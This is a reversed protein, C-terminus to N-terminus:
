LYKACVRKVRNLITPTDFLGGEVLKEGAFEVFTPNLRGLKKVKIKLEKAVSAHFKLNM